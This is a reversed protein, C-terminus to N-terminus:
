ADWCAKPLYKSELTTANGTHIATCGWTEDVYKWAITDKGAEFNKLKCEFTPNTESTYSVSEIYNGGTIVGDLDTLQSPWSGEDVFWIAVETKFGAFAMNCESVKSKAIYDSYAPIAVAAGIGIIAVVIMLEIMSFGKQHKM